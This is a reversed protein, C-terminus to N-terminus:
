PREDDDAAGSETPLAAAAIGYMNYGERGVPVQVAGLTVTTPEPVERKWVSFLTDISAGPGIDTRRSPVYRNKAEDLGIDRGTDIFDRRLWEPVPLSDSYLVYLTAPRALDVSVNLQHAFKDDNYPMVYDIGRLFQPIGDANLGNWQHNRDVFAQSDEQLGSRIIRYFKRSDLDGNNDGVSAIVAPASDVAPQRTAAAPFRDSSIATLRNLSGDPAVRLAEGQRLRRPAGGTSRNHGVSLDVLGRFVAVETAGSPSVDIGFETGLDVVRASPTEITFGRGDEGVRVSIGGLRAVAYDAARIEFEAPGRLLVEVGSDFVVEAEGREFRLIEGSALRTLEQRGDGKESWEIDMIRMLTAVGVKAVGDPVTVSRPRSVDSENWEAVVQRPDAPDGQRITRTGVLLAALGIMAAAALGLGPLMWYRKARQRGGHVAPASIGPLEAALDHLLESAPADLQWKLVATDNMYAIYIRRVEPSESVLRSLEERDATTASRDLIRTVYEHIAAFLTIPDDM